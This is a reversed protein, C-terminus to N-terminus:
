DTIRRTAIFQAPSLIPIDRFVRLALLHRDGSVIAEADGALACELFRNDSPDEPIAQVVERPEVRISRAPDVLLVAWERLDPASVFRALVSLYEQLVDESILLWLRCDRWSTVIRWPPGTWLSSVLVNTDLVVRPRSM